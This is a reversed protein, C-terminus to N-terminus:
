HRRRHLTRPRYGRHAPANERGEPPSCGTSCLPARAASICIAPPRPPSARSVNPCTLFGTERPPNPWLDHREARAGGLMPAFACFLPFRFVRRLRLPRRVAPPGGAPPARLSKKRARSERQVIPQSARAQLLFPGLPARKEPQRDAGAGPRDTQAREGRGLRREPEHPAAANPQRAAGGIRSRRASIRGGQRRGRRAKRRRTKGAARRARPRAPAPAAREDALDGTEDLLHVEPWLARSRAARKRFPPAPAPSFVGNRSRSVERPGGPKAAPSKM